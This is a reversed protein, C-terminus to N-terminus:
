GRRKDQNDQAQDAYPLLAKAAEIRLAMDISADNMVALLFARPDGHAGAEGAAADAQPRLAELVRRFDAPRISAFGALLDAQRDLNPAMELGPEDAFMAGLSPDIFASWKGTEAHLAPVPEPSHQGTSGPLFGFRSAPLDALYRRRLGELFAAADGMDVAEALSFWLRYGGQGSVSIAPAPLDFDAQVGHWLAQVHEWDGPRVFCALLARAKGEPGQPDLAPAAADPPGGLWQSDDILYLRRLEAILREHM